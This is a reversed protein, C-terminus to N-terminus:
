PAARRDHRRLPQRTVLATAVDSGLIHFGTQLLSVDVYRGRGSADRLRLAALIGCVLNVAAAHDGVAPRQLSPPVGADRMADMMGSRAWYTSYDFAPWDARAGGYGYGSIAGVVLRPQRALLTEHDLGYRRRREPLLNTILVDAREILRALADRAEARTLDLALSRKGRNDMHFPTNDPFDSDYGALRPNGQRYIEGRPLEVKVVDAGLDALLGGAAPVAVYNAVEVVRLGSLPLEM